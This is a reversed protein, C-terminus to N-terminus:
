AQRIIEVRKTRKLVVRYAINSGRIRATYEQEEM